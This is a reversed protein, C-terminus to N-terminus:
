WKLSLRYDSDDDEVYDDIFTRIRDFVSRTIYVNLVPPLVGRQFMFTLMPELDAEMYPDDYFVNVHVDQYRSPKACAVYVYPIMEDLQAQGEFFPDNFKQHFAFLFEGDRAQDYRFEDAM